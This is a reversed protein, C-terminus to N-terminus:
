VTARMPPILKVSAVWIDTTHDSIRIAHTLSALEAKFATGKGPFVKHISPSVDPSTSQIVVGGGTHGDKASGDTYIM